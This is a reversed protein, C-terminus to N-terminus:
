LERVPECRAILAGKGGGRDEFRTSVVRWGHPWGQWVRNNVTKGQLMAAMPALAVASTAADGPYGYTAVEGEFFGPRKTETMVCHGERTGVKNTRREDNGERHSIYKGPSGALSMERRKENVCDYFRQM